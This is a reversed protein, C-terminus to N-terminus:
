SSLARELAARDFPGGHTALVHAVPLDLLPRLPAAIEERTVGPRLWRENIELGRGFEVLTDGSIVARMGEVWLVTDNPKHGPLVDAGFPLRDGATYVRAEGKGERLLWVVDPSGNGAQEATIGYTDMLYQASDPLPTYVPAGLREVLSESDREHWPCTLVIATARGAALDVLESPVALPDFLLLREGDDIAYSSVNESWPETSRWEPHSAEWHWLGPRLERV